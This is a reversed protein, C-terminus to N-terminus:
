STLTHGYIEEETGRTNFALPLWVHKNHKICYRRLTQCFVTRTHDRKGTGTYKWEGTKVTITTTGKGGTTTRYVVRQGYLSKIVKVRKREKREKKEEM